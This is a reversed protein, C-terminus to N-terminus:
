RRSARANGQNQPLKQAIRPGHALVGWIVVVECTAPQLSFTRDRLQLVESDPWCWVQGRAAEEARTQMIESLPPDRAALTTACQQADCRSLPGFSDGCRTCALGRAARKHKCLQAIIRMRLIHDACGQLERSDPPEHWDQAVRLVVAQNDVGRPGAGGYRVCGLGYLLAYAEATLSSARSAGVQIPLPFSHCISADRAPAVYPTECCCLGRVLNLVPISTAAASGFPYM